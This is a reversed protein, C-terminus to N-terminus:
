TYLERRACPSHGRPQRAASIPPPQMKMAAVPDFVSNYLLTKFYQVIPSPQDPAPPVPAQQQQPAAAAADSSDTEFPNDNSAM